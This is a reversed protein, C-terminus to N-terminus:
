VAPAPGEGDDRMMQLAEERSRAGVKRTASAAHSRVTAEKIGLYRAVNAAVHGAALMELIEIERSTLRVGSYGLARRYRDRRAIEDAMLRVLRRPYATEGQLVGAVAHPLRAPDTQGLLFGHVGAAVMRLMFDDDAHDALLVFETRPLQERIREITALAGGPLRVSMVVADPKAAIAASFTEKADRTAAAVIM